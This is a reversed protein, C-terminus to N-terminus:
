LSDRKKKTEEFEVRVEDLYKKMLIVKKQDDAKSYYEILWKLARDRCGIGCLTLIKDEYRSLQIGMAFCSYAMDLDTGNANVELTRSLYKAVCYIDDLLYTQDGVQVSNQDWDPNPFGLKKQHAGNSYMPGAQRLITESNLENQGMSRITNNVIQNAKLIASVESYYSVAPRDGVLYGLSRLYVEQSQLFRKSKRDSDFIHIIMLYLIFILVLVASFAIRKQM